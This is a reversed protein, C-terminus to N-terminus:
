TRSYRQKFEILCIHPLSLAALGIFIQSIVVDSVLSSTFISLLLPTTVLIALISYLIVVPYRVRDAYHSFNDLERTFHLISHYACFYFAFFIIPHQTAALVYLCVIDIAHASKNFVLSAISLIVAAPCIARQFEMIIRADEGSLVSYIQSIQEPFFLSPISLLTIGFLMRQLGNYTERWDCSFHWASLLLFLVLSVVPAFLWLIFVSIATAVYGLHFLTFGLIGKYIQAEKSVLIDLAGHPLGILVILVTIFILHNTSLLDISGFIISFIALQITIGVLILRHM